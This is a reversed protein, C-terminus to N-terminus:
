AVRTAKYSCVTCGIDLQPPYSMLQVSPSLDLLENGCLPCAIGNRSPAKNDWAARRVADHDALSVLSRRPVVSETSEM